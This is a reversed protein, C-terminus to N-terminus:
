YEPGPFGQLPVFPDEEPTLHAELKEVRYTFTGPM